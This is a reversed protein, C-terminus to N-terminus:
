PEGTEGRGWPKGTLYRNLSTYCASIGADSGLNQALRVFIFTARHILQAHILPFASALTLSRTLPSPFTSGKGEQLMKETDILGTRALSNPTPPAFPPAM